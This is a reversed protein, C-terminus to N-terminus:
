GQSLVIAGGRLVTPQVVLISLIETATCYHRVIRPHTIGLSVVYVLRRSFRAMTRSSTTSWCSTTITRRRPARSTAKSGAV